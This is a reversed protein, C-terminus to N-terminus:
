AAVDNLQRSQVRAVAASLTETPLEWELQGPLDGAKTRTAHIIAPHHVFRATLEAAREVEGERTSLLALGGLFDLAQLTRVTKMASDPARCLYQRSCEIERLAYCALGLAILSTQLSIAAGDAVVKILAPSDEFWQKAEMHKRLAPTVKGLGRLAGGTHDPDGVDSAITLATSHHQRAL